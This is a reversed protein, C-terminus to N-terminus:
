GWSIAVMRGNIPVGPSSITCSITRNAQLTLASAFGGTRLVGLADSYVGDYQETVGVWSASLPATGAVPQCVGVIWGDAPVNITGTFVGSAITNDVLTAHPSAVTENVARYVAILARQVASSLTISVTGATGTPILASIVACNGTGSSGQAHITAGVGGISASSLTTSTAADHWTVGVVIRRTTDAAGFNQPPFNYTGVDTVDEAIQLFTMAPPLKGAMLGAACMGPVFSM